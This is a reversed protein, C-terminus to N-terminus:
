VSSRTKDDPKAEVDATGRFSVTSKRDDPDDPNPIGAQGQRGGKYGSGSQAERGADNQGGQQTPTGRGENPVGSPTRVEGRRVAAKADVARRAAAKSAAAKAGAARSAAAKIRNAVRAKAARIKHAIQTEM